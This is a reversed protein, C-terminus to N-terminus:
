IEVIQIKLKRNGFELASIRNAFWVDIKQWYRKNMRDEVTFIKDGFYEPIRIKTGLPLFNAAVVGDYVYTGNATIFPSDDTQDVTSSYATVPVVLEKIIKCYTGLPEFQFTMNKDPLNKAQLFNNAILVPSVANDINSNTGTNASIFASDLGAASASSAITNLLITGLLFLLSYKKIIVLIKNM